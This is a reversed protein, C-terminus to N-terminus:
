PVPQLTFTPRPTPTPSPTPTPTSQPTPTPPPPPPEPRVGDCEFDGHIVGDARVPYCRRAASERPSVCQLRVACSYDGITGNGNLDDDTEAVCINCQEVPADGCFLEIEDDPVIWDGCAADNEEGCSSCVTGDDQDEGCGSSALVCALLGLAILTSMKRM